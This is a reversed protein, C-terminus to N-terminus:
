AKKATPKKQTSKKVRNKGGALKEQVDSKKEQAQKQISEVYGRAQDKVTNLAEKVKERNKEDKLAIAGAVAIGAGVVAGTVAAAIPNVSSKERDQKNQDKM